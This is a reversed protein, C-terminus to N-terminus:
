GEAKQTPYLRISKDIFKKAKEPHGSSLFKTALQLCKLAEDKNGEM